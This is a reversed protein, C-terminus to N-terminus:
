IRGHLRKRKKQMRRYQATQKPLKAKLSSFFIKVETLMRKTGDPAIEIHTHCADCLPYLARMSRGSLNRLTYKHHHILTAAKQCLFCRNGYTLFAEARATKWVESQRYETYSEFGLQKLLNNRQFYSTCNVEFKPNM